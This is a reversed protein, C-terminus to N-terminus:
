LCITIYLIFKSELPQKFFYDYSKVLKLFENECFISM